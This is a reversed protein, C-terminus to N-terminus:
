DCFQPFKKCLEDELIERARDPSTGDPPLQSYLSAISYVTEKDGKPTIWWESAHVDSTFEPIEDWVLLGQQNKREAFEIALRILNEM